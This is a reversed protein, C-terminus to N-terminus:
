PASVVRYFVREGSASPDVLEKSGDSPLPGAYAVVKWSSVSLNDSRQLQYISGTRGEFAISFTQDGRALGLVKISEDPAPPSGLNVTPISNWTPSTFGTTGNYYYITLGANTNAFATASMSPANGAFVLGVLSTCGDFCAAGLSVATDLIAVGALAVCGQFASSRISVRGPIVIHTL